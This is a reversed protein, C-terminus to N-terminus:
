GVSREAGRGRRIEKSKEELIKRRRLKKRRRRKKKHINERRAERGSM